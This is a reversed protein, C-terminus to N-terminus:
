FKWGGLKLLEGATVEKKKEKQYDFANKRRDPKTKLLSQSKEGL